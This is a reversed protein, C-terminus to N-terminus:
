NALLSLSIVELKRTVVTLATPDLNSASLVENLQAEQEHFLVSLVIPLPILFLRGDVYMYSKLLLTIRLSKSLSYKEMWLWKNIVFLKFDSNLITLHMSIWFSNLGKQVRCQGSTRIPLSSVRVMLRFSSQWFICLSFCTESVGSHGIESLSYTLRWKFKNQQWSGLGKEHKTRAPSALVKAGQKYPFAGM